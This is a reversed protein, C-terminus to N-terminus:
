LVINIAAERVNKPFPLTFYDPDEWQSVNAIKCSLGTGYKINVDFTISSLKSLNTWNDKASTFILLDVDSNETHDGRAKSGFLIIEIPGFERVILPYLDHIALIESKNLSRITSCEVSKAEILKPMIM